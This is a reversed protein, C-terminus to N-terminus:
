REEISVLSADSVDVLDGLPNDWLRDLYDTIDIDLALMIRVRTM